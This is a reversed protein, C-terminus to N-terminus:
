DEEEVHRSLAHAAAEVFREGPGLADDEAIATRAAEDFSLKPRENMRTWYDVGRGILDSRLGEVLQAAVRSDSRTVFRLWHASLRPSLLPVPVM